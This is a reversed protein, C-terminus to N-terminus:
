IGYIWQKDPWASLRLLLAAREITPFGEENRKREGTWLQKIGPISRRSV